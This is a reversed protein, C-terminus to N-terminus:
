DSQNEDDSENTTPDAIGLLYKIEAIRGRLKITEEPTLNSDNKIRYGALREELHERLRTWTASYIEAQTLKFDPETM